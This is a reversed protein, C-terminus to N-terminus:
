LNVIAFVAGKHVRVVQRRGTACNSLGLSSLPPIVEDVLSYAGGVITVRAEGAPAMVSFTEGPELVLELAPRCAVDLAYASWGPEIAVAQLDTARLVTGLAALTHDIRRTFAATVSLHTAGAERAARVALDLDSEDKAAPYRRLEVGASEADALMRSSVSDFDGVCVVPLRGADVCLELGADAAVLLDAARIVGAYWDPAGAAPASGVVLANRCFSM